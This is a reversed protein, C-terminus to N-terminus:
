RAPDIRPGVAALMVTAVAAISFAISIASVLTAGADTAVTIAAGAVGAGVAIGLTDMLLTPSLERAEAGERAGAMVALPIVPFATGMGFGAIMWALYILWLPAGHLVLGAVGIGVLFVLAGVTVLWGHSRRGIVHSQWWSGIAWTLAAASITLGAATVSMGRVKTLMLPVFSDIAAFGASLLFACVAAAPAGRRARFTGAPVLRRLGLIGIALGIVAMAIALASGGGIGALFLGAGLMLTVVDLIPARDAAPDPEDRLAPMIMVVSVILFPIPVLFAWRWGVSDALFGGVLPGFLGPLLWTTALLALVRPRVAAPLTKAITSLSLAYAAGSAAGQVFRGAVLVIMSPAVASITLGVVYLIATVVILPRTGLRDAAAGILPITGIMALASASFAWGYLPLNGLDALVAPMVTAVVLIHVAGLTEFLLLGAVLRGDRGRFVDRWPAPGDPTAAARTEM